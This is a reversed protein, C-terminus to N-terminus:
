TISYGHARRTTGFIFLTPASAFSAKHFMGGRDKDGSQRHTSCQPRHSAADYSGLLSGFAARNQQRFVQYPYLSMFDSHLAGVDPRANNPLFM